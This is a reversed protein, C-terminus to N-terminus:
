PWLHLNRHAALQVISVNGTLLQVTTTDTIYCIPIKVEKSGADSDPPVLTINTVDAALTTAAQYARFPPGPFVPDYNILNAFPEVPITVYSFTSNTVAFPVGANAQISIYLYIPTGPTYTYGGLDTVEWSKGVTSVPGYPVQVLGPSFRITNGSRTVKFPHDEAGLTRIKITDDGGLHNYRNGYLVRGIMAQIVKWAKRSSALASDSM